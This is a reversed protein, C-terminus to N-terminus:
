SSKSLASSPRCFFSQDAFVPGAQPFVHGRGAVQQTQFRQRLDMDQHIGRGFAVGPRAVAQAMMVQLRGGEQLLIVALNGWVQGLLSEPFDDEVDGIVAAKDLPRVNGEHAKIGPRGCGPFFPMLWFRIKIALSQRSSPSVGRSADSGNARAVIPITSNATM